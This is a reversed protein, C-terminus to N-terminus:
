KFFYATYNEFTIHCGVHCNTTKMKPGDGDEDEASCQREVGDVVTAM